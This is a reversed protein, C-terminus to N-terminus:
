GGPAPEGDEWEERTIAYVLARKGVVETEGELREGLREAVRISAKNEPHILSIVRPQRLVGFAYGLAARAGETALGRGWYARRLAWGVEFGPWGEPQICGIRGVLVGSAREEVAWLGYGRLVWHGLVTAMHRWTEARTLPQGNGLYRMVEPDACMEAYADLDAEWFMRLVLRRTQITTPTVPSM